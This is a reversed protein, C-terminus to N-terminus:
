FSAGCLAHEFQHPWLTPWREKCTTIQELLRLNPASTQASRLRLTSTKPELPQECICLLKHPLQGHCGFPTLCTRNERDVYRGVHEHGM